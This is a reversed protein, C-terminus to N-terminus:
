SRYNRITYLDGYAPIPFVLRPSATISLTAGDVTIDHRKRTDGWVYSLAEYPEGDIAQSVLRGVIPDAFEGADVETLDWRFRSAHDRVRATAEEPVAPSLAHIVRLRPVRARHAAHALTMSDVGGSVAIALGPLDALIADLQTM